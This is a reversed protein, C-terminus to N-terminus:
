KFYILAVIIYRVLKGTTVTLTLPTIRVKLFGLIAMLPDGIFPLWALLGLWYGYKNSKNSWYKIKYDNLKFKTILRESNSLYGIYYNTLSGLVNGVTAIAIVIYANYNAEFALIIILESPTPLLTSAIFAALFIGFYGLSIYDM